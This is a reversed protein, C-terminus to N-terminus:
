DHNEKEVSKDFHFHAKRPVLLAKLQIDEQHSEETQLMPLITMYQYHRNKM